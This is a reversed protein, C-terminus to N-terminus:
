RNQPKRMTLAGCCACCMIGIVRITESLQPGQWEKRASAVRIEDCAAISAIGVCVLGVADRVHNWCSVEREMSFSSMVFFLLIDHFFRM